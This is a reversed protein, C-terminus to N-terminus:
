QYSPYVMLSHGSRAASCSACGTEFGIDTWRITKPWCAWCSRNLHQTLLAKCGSCIHHQRLFEREFKELRASQRNGESAPRTLEKERSNRARRIWRHRVLASALRRARPNSCLSLYRHPVPSVVEASCRSRGHRPDQLGRRRLEATPPILGSATFQIHRICPPKPRTTHNGVKSASLWTLCKL